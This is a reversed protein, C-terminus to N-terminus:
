HNFLLNLLQEVLILVAFLLVIVIIAQLRGSLKFNASMISVAPFVVGM